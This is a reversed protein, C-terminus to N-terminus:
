PGAVTAVKAPTLGYLGAVLSDLQAEAEAM